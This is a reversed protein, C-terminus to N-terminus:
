NGSPGSMLHKTTCGFSSCILCVFSFLIANVVARRWSCNGLTLKLVDRWLWTVPRPWTKNMHKKEGSIVNLDIYGSRSVNSSFTDWWSWSVNLNICPWTIIFWGILITKLALSVASTYCINYKGTEILPKHNSIRLKVLTKRNPNKKTLDLYPSPTYSDKFTNYFELKQSNCLSHKWYAIYKKKM